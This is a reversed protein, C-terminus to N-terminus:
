REHVEERSPYAGSRKLPQPQRALFSQKSPEYQQEANMQQEVLQGVFRSVSTDHEAAWIRLWRAVEEKLTITINKM